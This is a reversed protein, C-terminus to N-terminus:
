RLVRLVDPWDKPFWLYAEVAGGLAALWTKQEPSAKGKPGKIEAFVLRDRRVLLLDPLGATNRRSDNDHWWRWGMITAYDTIRGQYDAESLM